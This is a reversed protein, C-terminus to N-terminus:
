ESTETTSEADAPALLSPLVGSPLEWFRAREQLWEEAYGRRISRNIAAQLEDHQGGKPIAIALPEASIINPLLSYGTLPGQTNVWGTLVSADGAYADVSGNQLLAQGESYTDVGILEAGPLLYRVHAVTSSRNLLAIRRTRLDQLTQVTDGVVFATGDLYYPDSFDVLRRRPETLTIAAIAIDVRGELVANLRDVNRLPVFEVATADGLLTEALRRAIDIEFGSIEGTEDIFGLPLRNTKVGVILYGRAQIESLEAAAAPGFFQLARQDGPQKTFQDIFIPPLLLQAGVCVILGALLNRLM